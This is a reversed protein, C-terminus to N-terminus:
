RRGCYDLGLLGSIAEAAQETMSEAILYPAGYFEEEETTLRDEAVVPVPQDTILTGCTSYWSRIKSM